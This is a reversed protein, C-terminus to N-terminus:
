RGEEHLLRTRKKLTRLTVYLGTVIVALIIWPVDMRLRGEAVSDGILDLVLFGATVVFFGTHERRLVTRWSFPLAPPVWGTFRPM